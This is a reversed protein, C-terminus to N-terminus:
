AKTMTSLWLRLSATTQLREISWSAQCWTWLWAYRRSPPTAATLRISLRLVPTARPQPAQPTTLSGQAEVDIGALDAGRFLLPLGLAADAIALAQVDPAAAEVAQGPELRPGVGIPRGAGGPPDARRRARRDRRTPLGLLGEQPGQRGRQGLREVQDLRRRHV